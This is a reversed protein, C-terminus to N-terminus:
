FDHTIAKFLKEDVLIDLRKWFERGEITKNWSFATAIFSLAKDKSKFKTRYENDYYNKTFNRLVNKEKLERCTISKVIPLLKNALSEKVGLMESINGNIYRIVDYYEVFSKYNYNTTDHKINNEKFCESLINDILTM